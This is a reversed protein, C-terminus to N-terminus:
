RKYPARDSDRGRTATPKRTFKEQEQKRQANFFNVDYGGISDRASSKRVANDVRRGVREPKNDFQSRSFPRKEFSGRPTGYTREERQGAGEPKRANQRDGYTKKEDRNKDGFRSTPRSGGRKFDDRGSHKYDGREKGYSGSISRSVMRRKKESPPLPRDLKVDAYESGKDLVAKSTTTKQLKIKHEKEIGMVLHREDADVLM